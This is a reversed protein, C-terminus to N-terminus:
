LGEEKARIAALVADRADENCLYAGGVEDLKSALARDIDKATLAVGLAAPPPSAALLDALMRVTVPVIEHRPKGDILLRASATRHNVAPEPPTALASIAAEAESRWNEWDDTTERGLAARMIAIAVTRVLIEQARDTM